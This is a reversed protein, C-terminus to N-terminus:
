ISRYYDRVHVGSARTYARLHVVIGHRSQDEKIDQQSFELSYGKQKTNRYEDSLERLNSVYEGIVSGVIDKQTM